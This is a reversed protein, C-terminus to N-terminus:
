AEDLTILDDMSVGIERSILYLERFDMGFFRNNAFMKIKKTSIGTKKGINKLINDAKKVDFDAQELIHKWINLKLPSELAKDSVQSFIKAM